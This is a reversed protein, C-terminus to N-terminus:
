RGTLQTQQTHAHTHKHGRFRQCVQDVTLINGLSSRPVVSVSAYDAVVTADAETLNFGAGM